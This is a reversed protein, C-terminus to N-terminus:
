EYSLAKLPTLRAARFAPYLSGLLTMGLATYLARWFASATYNAHLVGKLTPLHELISTVAFTLGVGVIAGVLALALNEVLLLFVLRRRTWGIARLLGFERTREFLSLLMTNGVIVAGILVALVTSGEVAAKLYTLSLDARGFQAATQITTLEPQNVDIHSAVASVSAGQDVKVFALTVIGPLRNYGQLAPLPFMAGSDGFSNGTSYIGTVTNWTGNADFRSGM